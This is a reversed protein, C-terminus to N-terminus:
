AQVGSDDFRKWRYFIISAIWSVAFIGIIIYGLIGFNENLKRVFDWLSGSLRFHAVLLSLAELSGIVLAVIISVLTVTLNYYLKRIPKVFAWGYAGLMLVNDTTDILCMGAAFLAPFVLTSVLPLGRSAETASISLLGIETATDFGLGFLIGLPYMHWSEQILHFMPRLVRALLGQNELLHDLEEEIYPV